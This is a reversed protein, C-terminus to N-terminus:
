SPKAAPTKLVVFVVPVVSVVSPAFSAQPKFFVLWAFSLSYGQPSPQQLIDCVSWASLLSSSGLEARCITKLVFVFLAFRIARHARNSSISVYVQIFCVAEGGAGRWFLPSHNCYRQRLLHFPYVMTKNLLSQRITWKCQRLNRIDKDFASIHRSTEWLRSM